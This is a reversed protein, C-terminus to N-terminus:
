AEEEGGRGRAVRVVVPAAAEGGRGAGGGRCSRSLRREGHHRAEPPGRPVGPGGGGHRADVGVGVGLPGLLVPVVLREVDLPPLCVSSSSPKAGHDGSKFPTPNENQHTQRHLSCSPYSTILFTPFPFYLSTNSPKRALLSSLHTM